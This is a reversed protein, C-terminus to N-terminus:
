SASMKRFLDRFVENRNVAHAERIFHRGADFSWTLNDTLLPSHVIDTPLWSPNVLWAVAAIDWIVKGWAYHDESYDHFIEILYDAAPGKGSLHERLEALTTILHSAVGGCPVRVLPVGCDLLLRSAYLDQALNFESTSRLWRSHGGLWVVVINRIIDPNLLIASAVNTLAAVAAVYLPGDASSGREALDEAAASRVAKDPAPLYSRSGTYAFGQGPHQLKELLRLIEEYSKEMGDEPGASRDNYFPAAYVAELQLQRPSRVAYALAFQDDIENYTDTDLVVRCPGSPPSLRNLREGDDLLPFKM